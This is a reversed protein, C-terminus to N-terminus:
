PCAVRCGFHRAASLEGCFHNQGVHVAEGCDHFVDPRKMALLEARSVLVRPTFSPLPGEDLYVMTLRTGVM